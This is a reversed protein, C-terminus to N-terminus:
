FSIIILTKFSFKGKSEAKFAAKVNSGNDTVFYDIGYIQLGIRNLLFDIGSRVEQNATGNTMCFVGIFYANSQFLEDVTHLNAGLYTSRNGDTWIDLTVCKSQTKMLDLKIRDLVKKSFDVIM